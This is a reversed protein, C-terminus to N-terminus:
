YDVDWDGDEYTLKVSERFKVCFPCAGAKGSIRGTGSFKYADGQKLGIMEIEGKVSVACLAEGSVGALMKGGYTPGEAFYFVGAGVGASVNFMCGSGIIPMWAVGYAYAGTFSGAGDLLSAVDPDILVLPDISCSKGFFVGGSLEYSSFRLGVEAALYAENLGFAVAAGLETIVFTEYSLEGTMDFSGGIGIPLGGNNFSFKTSVDARLDPSIWGLAVDNAGLVVETVNGAAAGGCSSDGESDHSKIELFGDFELADPVQWQFKGDLRLVELSDGTIRAYGAVQGAGVYADLDNGLLDNIEEDIGSLFDSIADRLIDNLADFGSDIASAMRAELDFLFQKFTASIDTVFECAYIRAKIAERFRLDLDVSITTWASASVDLTSLELILALVDEEAADMATEIEGGALSAVTLINKLEQNIDSAANNLQTVIEKVETYVESLSAEAATIKDGHKELLADWVQNLIEATIVASLDIILGEAFTELANEDPDGYADNLVDFLDALDEDDVEGYRNLRVCADLAELVLSLNTTVQDVLTTAATGADALQQLQDVIGGAADFANSVDTRMAVTDIAGTANFTAGLDVILKDISVDILGELTEDLVLDMRDGVMKELRDTGDTLADFAAEGAAQVLSSAAGTSADVANFAAETLNVQPLGDYSFGFDLEVHGPSLHVCQNAINVVMVDNTAEMSEFTRRTNDWNMEYEFNVVDVWTQLARPRYLSSTTTDRYNTTTVTSPRATPFPDFTTAEFPTQGGDRWGEAPWGGM